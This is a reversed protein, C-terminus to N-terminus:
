DLTDTKQSKTFEKMRDLQKIFEDLKEVDMRNAQIINNEDLVFITPSAIVYYQKLNRAYADSPAASRDLHIWNKVEPHADMFEDFEKKKDSQTLGIVVWDKDMNKNYIRALKPVVERCHGCTPDWFIMIKYKAKIDNLRVWPTKQSAARATDFTQLMLDAARTGIVSGERQIINKSISGITASDAWWAKGAMYTERGLMCFTKDLGMINSTEFKNIHYWILFRELDVTQDAMNIIRSAARYASDPHLVQVKDWYFDLKQKVIHFPMRMLGDEGFDVNDFYHNRYYKYPYSSDAKGEKDLPLEKPVEIDIVATLFRSLLHNPNQNIYTRDLNNKTIIIAKKQADLAARKTSSITSDKLEKDLRVLGKAIELKEIQYQIFSTNEESGKVVMKSYFDNEYYSTDTEIQFDLDDSVIFEFFGQKKPFVFLYMGRQLKYNGEFVAIGKKNVQATDRLYKSGNYNDALYVEDGPRLGGIKFKLSYEGEQQGGWSAAAKLNPYVGVNNIKKVATLAKYPTPSKYDILQAKITSGVLLCLGLSLSKLNTLKM